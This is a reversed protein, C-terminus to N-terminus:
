KELELIRLRLMQLAMFAATKQIRERDGRLRWEDVWVKQTRADKMGCYVLGVPKLDTGGSPGAIGTLAISWQADTVQAVGTVMAEACERSVAGFKELLESPVGLMGMKLSNSYTVAGGLFYHSSGPIATLLSSLLGGTCSEAVALTRTGQIM